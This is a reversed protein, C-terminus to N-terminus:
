SCNRIIKNAEPPIRGESEWRLEAEPGRTPSEDKLGEIIKGVINLVPRRRRHEGVTVWTLFM